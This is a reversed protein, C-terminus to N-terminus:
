MNLWRRQYDATIATAEAVPGPEVSTSDCATTLVRIATDIAHAAGTATVNLTAGFTPPGEKAPGTGVAGIAAAFLRDFLDDLDDTAPRGEFLITCVWEPM